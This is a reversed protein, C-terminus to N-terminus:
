APVGGNDIIDSFNLAIVRRRHSVRLKM